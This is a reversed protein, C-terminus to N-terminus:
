EGKREVIVGHAISPITEGENFSTGSLLAGTPIFLVKNLRGEEIMPLIKGCFVSASCGCGSGGSHSDQSDDDFMEIGCDMYKNTIDIGKMELMDFLIDRGVVGLDGTIIMDYDKGDTNFERFNNVIVDVAAPAMAAGMNMSDKVGYDKITGTTIGTIMAHHGTIEVKEGHVTKCSSDKGTNKQKKVSSLMVAGSGTVTWTSCYPRQNGYDLPFRFQKEAAAFHSSTVAVVRDAYGGDVAMAGLSLAEGMTSCAGYIGFLSVNMKNTGFTTAMLQGLLDGAFMYKIDDSKVGTKSLLKDLVKEQMKSEAKEWSDMGFYPDKEVIDFYQRLPGEGEKEGVVAAYGEIYVGNQFKVSHPGINKNGTM